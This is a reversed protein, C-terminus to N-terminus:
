AHQEEVNIIGKTMVNVKVQYHAPKSVGPTPYFNCRVIYVGEKTNPQVSEVRFFLVGMPGAQEQFYTRVIRTAEAADLETKTEM